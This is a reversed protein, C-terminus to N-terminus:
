LRMSPMQFETLDLMTPGAMFVRMYVKAPPVSFKTQCLASIIM